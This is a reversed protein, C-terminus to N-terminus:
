QHPDLHEEEIRGNRKVVRSNLEYDDKWGELDKMTVGVYLNNASAALIYEV